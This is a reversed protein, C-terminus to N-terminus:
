NQIHSGTTLEHWLSRVRQELEAPDGDNYIIDDAYEMKREMPMQRSMRTRISTEDQGRDRALRALVVDDPAAVVWLRDVMDGWGAEILLAAEVAAWAHGASSLRRLKGKVRRRTAPHVIANLLELATPDDFVKGGLLARDVRGTSDLIDEGFANVLERWTRTGRRYTMHAEHDADVVPCGMQELLRCVTTKGSGITGTIGLVNM